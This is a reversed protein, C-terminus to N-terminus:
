ANDHPPKEDQRPLERDKCMKRRRAFYLFPVGTLFVGVAISLLFGWAETEPKFLLLIAILVASACYYAGAIWLLIAQLRGAWPVSAMRAIGAVVGCAAWAGFVAVDVYYGTLSEVAPSPTAILAMLLALPSLLVWALGSMWGSTQRSM